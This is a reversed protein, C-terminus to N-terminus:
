GRAASGGLAVLEALAADFGAVLLEPDTVTAADTRFGVRVTGAYSFVCVGLTQDAAQPVWGLVGTMPVGALTRRDAPGVVNTLVGVAKASFFDVLLREVQPHTLGIAGITGFTIAAEPSAKIADMRERTRDLRTRADVDTSVLPFLVLAFRNGLEAPLPGEARVNVPVMATLDVPDAGRAVLYSAVAGGVASMLIDNVTSGTARGAAKVAALDHPTSWVARKAIGPTGSLPTRPLSGLLLKDVVQGTQWALTLADVAAEPRVLRALDAFLHLAARLPGRAGDDPPPPAPPPAADDAPDTLSLLVHALAIGDAVAHHIRALVVSGAPGGDDPRYGHLLWVEWLPHALDLPQSIHEEVFARLAADGGPAALRRVVLHRDLDFGPDDVWRPPGVPLLPEAPRMRFVPFRDLLRETVVARLRDIRVTGEFWMLTDIVLLNEPRDMHLWIADVAGMTHRATATM